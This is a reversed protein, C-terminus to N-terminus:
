TDYGENGGHVHWAMGHTEWHSGCSGLGVHKEFAVDWFRHKAFLFRLDLWEITCWGGELVVKDMAWTM